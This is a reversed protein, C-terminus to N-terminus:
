AGTSSCPIVGAQIWVGILTGVLFLICTVIIIRHVGNVICAEVEKWTFGAMISLLSATITALMLPVLFGVRLRARRSPHGSHSPLYDGSGYRLKRDEKDNMGAKRIRIPSHVLAMSPSSRPLGRLSNELHRHGSPDAHSRRAPSARSTPSFLVRRRAEPSLRLLPNGPPIESEFNDIAAGRIVGANSPRRCPGNRGRHRRAANVLIAGPKMSALRAADVLGRTADMLRATLTVIDSVAFLEDLNVRRIGHEQAFDEPWFVDSAVVTAGSPRLAPGAGPRHRRAEVIGVTAGFLECAGRDLIRETSACLRRVQHDRRTLYSASSPLDGGRHRARGRHDRKTGTLQVRHPRSSGAAHDVSEFGAGATQIIRM